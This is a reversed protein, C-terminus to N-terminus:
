KSIDLHRAGCTAGAPAQPAVLRSASFCLEAGAVHRVHALLLALRHADAHQRGLDAVLDLARLDHRADALLLAALLDLLLARAVRQAVRRRLRCWGLREVVQALEVVGHHSGSIFLHLAVLGRVLEGGVERALLRRLDHDGRGVVRSRRREAEDAVHQREQRVRKVVLAARVLQLVDALPGAVGAERVQHYQRLLALLEVPEVHRVQGLAGRREEPHRRRHLARVDTPM